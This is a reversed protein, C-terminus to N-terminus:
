KNEGKILATCTENWWDWQAGCRCEPGHPREHSGGIMRHIVDSM